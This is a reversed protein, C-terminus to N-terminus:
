KAVISCMVPTVLTAKVLYRARRSERRVKFVRDINVLADKQSSRSAGFVYCVRTAHTPPVRRTSSWKVNVPWASADRAIPFIMKKAHVAVNKTPTRVKKPTTAVRIPADDVKKPTTAVKVPLPTNRIPTICVAQTGISRPTTPLELIEWSEARLDPETPADHGEQWQAFVVEDSM